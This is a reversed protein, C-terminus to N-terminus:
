MGAVAGGRRTRGLAHGGGRREPVHVVVADDRGGVVPVPRAAAGPMIKSLVSAAKDPGLAKTFVTEIYKLKM